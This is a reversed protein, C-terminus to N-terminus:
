DSLFSTVEVVLDLLNRKRLLRVPVPDGHQRGMLAERLAGKFSTEVSNVELLIDSVRIGARAAPGTRSVGRVQLGFRQCALAPHVLTLPVCQVRVGLWGTRLLTSCLVDGHLVGTTQFPQMHAM